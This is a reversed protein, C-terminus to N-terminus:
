RGFCPNQKNKWWAVHWDSAGVNGKKTGQALRHAMIHSSDLSLEEPVPGAVAM